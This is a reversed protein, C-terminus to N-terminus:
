ANDISVTIEALRGYSANGVDEASKAAVFSAESTLFVPFAATLVFVYETQLPAELRLPRM